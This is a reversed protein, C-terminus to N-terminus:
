PLLFVTKGGGGNWEPIFLARLDLLSQTVVM